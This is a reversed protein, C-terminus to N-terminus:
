LLLNYETLFASLRLKLPFHICISVKKKKKSGSKEVAEDLFDDDSGFGEEDFDDGDLM